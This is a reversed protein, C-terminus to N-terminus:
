NQRIWQIIGNEGELGSILKRADTPECFNLKYRCDENWKSLLLSKAHFFTQDEAGREDFKKRLGCLILLMSINHTRLLKRIDSIGSMASNERDDFDFLNPIELKECCRAKLELEVVYGALYFAGEDLDNEELVKAEKLRQEAISRIREPTVM